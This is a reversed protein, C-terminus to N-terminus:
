LQAKLRERWLESGNSGHQAETRAYRGEEKAGRGIEQERVNGYTEETRQPIFSIARPRSESRQQASGGGERVVEGGKERDPAQPM